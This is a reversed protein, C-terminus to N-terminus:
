NNDKFLTKYVAPQREFSLFLDKAKVMSQPQLNKPNDTVVALLSAM